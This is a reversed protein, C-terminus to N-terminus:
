KLLATALLAGMLTFIFDIISIGMSVWIALIQSEINMPNTYLAEIRKDNKLKKLIDLTTGWVMDVKLGNFCNAWPSTKKAGGPAWIRRLHDLVMCIFFETLSIFIGASPAEGMQGTLAKVM